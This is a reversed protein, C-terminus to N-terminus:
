EFYNGGNADLLKKDVFIAIQSKEMLNTLVFEKNEIKLCKQLAGWYRENIFIKFDDRGMRLEIEANIENIYPTLDINNSYNQHM